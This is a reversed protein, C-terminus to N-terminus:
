LLCLWGFFFVDCVFLGVLVKGKFYMRENLLDIFGNVGKWWISRQSTKVKVSPEVEGINM